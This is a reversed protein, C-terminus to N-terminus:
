IVKFRDLEVPAEEQHMILSSNSNAGIFLALTFFSSCVVALKNFFKSSCNKMM